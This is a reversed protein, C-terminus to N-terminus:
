EEVWIKYPGDTGDNNQVVLHEATTDTNFTKSNRFYLEGPLATLISGQLVAADSSLSFQLPVTGTNRIRFNRTIQYPYNAIEVTTTHPAIGDFDPTSIAGTDDISRASLYGAYLSPNTANVISMVKDLKNKLMNNCEDFEEYMKTRAITQEIRIEKPEQILDFFDAAATNLNTFDAATVGYDVLAAANPTAVSTVTQSYVYFDNDRMGDMSSPTEDVKELMIINNTISALAICGSSVKYVALRLKHRKNQKDVMAGTPDADAIAANAIIADIHGELQAELIAIVAIFALEASHAALYGKTKQFMGLRNELNNEM